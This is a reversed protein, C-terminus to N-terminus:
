TMMQGMDAQINSLHGVLFMSRALVPLYNYETNYVLTCPLEYGSYTVTSTMSVNHTHSRCFSRVVEVSLKYGFYTFIVEESHERGFYIPVVEGFVDYLSM